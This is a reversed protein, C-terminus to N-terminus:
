MERVEIAIPQMDKEACSTSQTKPALSIKKIMMPLATALLLKVKYKVYYKLLEGIVNKKAM